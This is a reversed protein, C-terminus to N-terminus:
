MNLEETEDKQNLILVKQGISMERILVFVPKAIQQQQGDQDTYSGDYAVSFTSLMGEELSSPLSQICYANNLHNKFFYRM